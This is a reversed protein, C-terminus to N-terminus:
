TIYVNGSSDLEISRGLVRYFYATSIYTTGDIVVFQIGRETKGNDLSFSDKFKGKSITVSNDKASWSVTYGLKVCIERLPVYYISDIIQIKQGISEGLVVVCNEAIEGQGSPFEFCATVLAKTNIQDLCYTYVGMDVFYSFPRELGYEIGFVYKRTKIMTEYAHDSKFTSRKFVNVTMMLAPKFRGSVSVCYFNLRELYPSEKPLIVRDVFVYDRWAEPFYFTYAAAEGYVRGDKTSLRTVMTINDYGSPTENIGLDAYVDTSFAALLLIMMIGFSIRKM